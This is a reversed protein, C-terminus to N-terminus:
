GTAEELWDAAVDLGEWLAVKAFEEVVQEEDEVEAGTSDIYAHAVEHLVTLVAEEESDVVDSVVIVSYTGDVYRAVDRGLDDADVFYIAIGRDLGLLEAAEEAVEHAQVFASVAADSPPDPPPEYDWAPRYESSSHGIQVYGEDDVQVADM